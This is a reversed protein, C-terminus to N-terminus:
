VLRRKKGLVGEEEDDSAMRKRQIWLVTWCRACRAQMVGARMCLQIRTDFCKEHVPCLCGYSGNVMDNVGISLRCEVCIVSM